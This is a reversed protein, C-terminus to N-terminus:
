KTDYRCISVGTGRIIVYVPSGWVSRSVIPSDSPAYTSTVTDCTTLDTCVLAGDDGVSWASLAGAQSLQLANVEPGLYDDDDKVQGCM